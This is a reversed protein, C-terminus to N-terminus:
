RGAPVRLHLVVDGADPLLHGADALAPADRARARLEVHGHRRRRLAQVADELVVEADLDQLAVAAVHGGDRALDVQQAGRAHRQVRHRLHPFRRRCHRALARAQLLLRAQVVALLRLLRRVLRRDGRDARVRPVRPAAHEARLAHAGALRRVARQALRLHSRRGHGVLRETARLERPALSIEAVRRQRRVRPHLRREQRVADLLSAHDLRLLRLEPPLERLVQLLLQVAVLHVLQRRCIVM